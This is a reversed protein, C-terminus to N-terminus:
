KKGLLKELSDVATKVANKINGGVLGPKYLAVSLDRLMIKLNKQLSQITTAQLEAENQLTSVQKQLSGIEINVKESEQLALKEQRALREQAMRLENMAGSLKRESEDRAERLRKAELAAQEATMIRKNVYARYEEPTVPVREDESLQENYVRSLLEQFDHVHDSESKATHGSGIEVGYFIGDQTVSVEGNKM